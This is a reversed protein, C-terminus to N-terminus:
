LCLDLTQLGNTLSNIQRHIIQENSRVAAPSACWRRIFFASSIQGLEHNIRTNVWFERELPILHGTESELAIDHKLDRGSCGRFLVSAHTKTHKARTTDINRFYSDYSRWIVHIHASQRMLLLLPRPSMGLSPGRRLRRLANQLWRQPLLLLFHELQFSSVKFSVHPRKIRTRSLFSFCRTSYM